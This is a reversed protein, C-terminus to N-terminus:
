AAHTLKALQRLVAKAVLEPYQMHLHHGGPISEVTVDGVEGQWRQVAEVLNAHGQEGLIVLLPAQIGQLIAPVQEATFRFPSVSRVRPDTRWSYGGEVTRLNRQLLLEALHENFDGAKARAHRLHQLDTYVPLNRGQQKFRSAFGKRLQELADQPQGTVLGFAEISIVSKISQPFTAALLQAVFGGMSHGLLHVQQWQQDRILAEVDYVWDVFYYQADASRHSSHGHGPFDIAIWDYDKLYPLMPLFSHCNDLWGHLLLLLPGGPTGGRLGKITVHSLEFAVESYDHVQQPPYDALKSM